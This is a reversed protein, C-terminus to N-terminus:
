KIERDIDKLLKKMKVLINQDIKINEIGYKGIDCLKLLKITRDLISKSTKNELIKKVKSPDLQFTNLNMKYKLYNYFANSAVEFSNSNKNKLLKLAINLASRSKRLNYTVVRYGLIKEIIIPLVLLIISVLYITLIVIYKKKFDNKLNSSGESIFRIDKELFEIEEKKFGLNEAEKFNDKIIDVVISKTNTILWKKKNPDFYSMEIGPLELTGSKRPILVYEWTKNGTFQNRFIDKEFSSVPPFVELQSPFKIKPLSFLGLNGTGELYITYSFGENIRITDRDIKSALNFEGIAGNFNVPIPPPLEKIKINIKETNLIKTKSETFFSDFFPDFFPDRSRKKKKVEIKAKIKLIPISHKNSIIPFLAKQGLKAVQYKVGDITINQYNLRQPTFIDEIWFGPFEPMQFPEISANINKYLNYTLTIQEGLYVENKDIEAKIFIRNNERDNKNSVSIKISKGQFNKGDVSGKIPPIILEGHSIPSITWTLTKTSSMNGNIWQINTQQSPGSLIDFSKKIQNIDVKPFDNSGIVEISLTITEDKKIKNKDVAIQITQSICIKFILLFFIYLRM